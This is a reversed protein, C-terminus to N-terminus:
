SKELSHLRSTTYTIKKGSSGYLINFLAEETPTPASNKLFEEAYLNTQVVIDYILEDSIFLHVYDKINNPVLVLIELLPHYSKHLRLQQGSWDITEQVQQDKNVVRILNFNFYKILLIIIVKRTNVTIERVIRNVCICILL